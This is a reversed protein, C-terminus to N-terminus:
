GDEGQAFRVHFVPHIQAGLPLKLKYAVEEIKKEVAYPGYFKSALKLNKRITVTSQRFSQLKLYVFDGTEFKRESRKEDVYWEMMGQAKQIGEKLVAEIRKRGDLYSAM